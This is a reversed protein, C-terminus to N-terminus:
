LLFLILFIMIININLFYSKNGCNWYAKQGEKPSTFLKKGGAKKIVLGLDEPLLYCEGSQNEGEDDAVWCCLMGSGTGYKTCDKYKKPKGDISKGCTLESYFYPPVENEKNEEQSLYINILISILIYKIISM